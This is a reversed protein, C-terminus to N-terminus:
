WWPPPGDRLHRFRTDVGFRLALLDLVLLAVIIVGFTLLADM